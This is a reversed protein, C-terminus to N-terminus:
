CQGRTSSSSGSLTINCEEPQEIFGSCIAQKYSEPTRAGRYEVGNIFLTPSGTVGLENVKEEDERLMQIAESSNACKFIKEHNIEHTIAVGKVCEKLTSFNRYVPTCNKNVDILFDWFKEPYYKQVCLEVLNEWAENPGHLARIYFTGDETEIKLSFPFENELVSAIYRVKVKIKGKLLKIVPYLNNEAQNGFPCFSMVYLEIEPIEKDPADFGTKKFERKEEPASSIDEMGLFLMKGDGTVYVPIDRGRYVTTVNYLMVCGIKEISKFSAVEGAPILNDNIYNIVKNSLRDTSISVCGTIKKPFNFLNFFSLLFLIFFAVSFIKLVFDKKIKVKKRKKGM